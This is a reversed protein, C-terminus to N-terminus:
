MLEKSVLHEDGKNYHLSYATFHLYGPDVDAWVQKDNYPLPDHSRLEREVLQELVWLQLRCALYLDDRLHRVYDCSRIAYWMHLKNQRLLFHYHLTCPVRGGHVAGTDEPFFIPFTAQRTYPERLLLNVVDDLDGYAYRIGQIHERIGGRISCHQTSAYKPWFREQYTHTFIARHHALFRDGEKLYGAFTEPTFGIMATEDQGRWWPWNKYQEGPNSPVRSVREEFHDDAWPLNPQIDRRLVHLLGEGHVHEKWGPPQLPISCHWNMLEHTILDPKGETPVGQWHGPNIDVGYVQLMGRANELAIAFNSFTRM